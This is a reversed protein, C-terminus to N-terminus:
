PLAYNLCKLYTPTIDRIVSLDLAPWLRFHKTKTKNDNKKYLNMGSRSSLIMENKQVPQDGVQFVYYWKTKKYLNMGSRSSMTDNSSSVLSASKDESVLSAALHEKWKTKMGRYCSLWIKIPLDSTVRVKLVLFTCTCSFYFDTTAFHKSKISSKM